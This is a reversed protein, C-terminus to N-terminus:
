EDAIDHQEKLAALEEERKALDAAKAAASLFSGAGGCVAVTKINKDTFPSHRIVSLNFIKYIHSFM